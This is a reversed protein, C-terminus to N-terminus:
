SQDCGPPAAFISCLRVGLDTKKATARSPRLGTKDASNQRLAYYPVTVFDILLHRPLPCNISMSWKDNMTAPAPNRFLTEHRDPSGWGPRQYVQYSSSGSTLASMEAALSDCCGVSALEWAARLSWFRMACRSNRKRFCCFTSMERTM